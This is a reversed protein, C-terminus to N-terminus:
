LSHLRAAGYDRNSKVKRSPSFRGEEVAYLISQLNMESRGGLGELWSNEWAGGVFVNLTVRVLSLLHLPSSRRQRSLRSRVQLGSRIGSEGSLSEPSGWSLTRERSLCPSMILSGKVPPPLSWTETGRSYWGWPTGCPLRSCRELIVSTWPVNEPRKSSDQATPM